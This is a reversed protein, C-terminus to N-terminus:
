GHFERVNAIMINFGAGKCLKGNVLKGTTTIDIDKIQVTLESSRPKSLVMQLGIENANEYVSYAPKKFNLRIALQIVVRVCTTLIMIFINHLVERTSRFPIIYTAGKWTLM